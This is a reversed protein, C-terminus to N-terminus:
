GGSTGSKEERRDRETAKKKAFNNRLGRKATGPLSFAGGFPLASKSFVHEFVSPSFDPVQFPTWCTKVM